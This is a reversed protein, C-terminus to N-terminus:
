LQNMGKELGNSCCHVFCVKDLIQISSPLEMKRCWCGNHQECIKKKNIHHTKQKLNQLKIIRQM